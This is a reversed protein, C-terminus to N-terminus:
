RTARRAPFIPSSRVVADTAEAIRRDSNWQNYIVGVAFAATVASSLILKRGITLSLM